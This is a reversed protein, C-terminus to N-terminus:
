LGAGGASAKSLEAWRFCGLIHDQVMGTAKTERVGLGGPSPM